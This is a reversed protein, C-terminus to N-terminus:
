DIQGGAAAPGDIQGPIVAQGVHIDIVHTHKASGCRVLCAACLLSRRAFTVCYAPVISEVFKVLWMTPPLYHAKSNYDSKISLNTKRPQRSDLRIPLYM